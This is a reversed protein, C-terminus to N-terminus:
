AFRLLTIMGVAAIGTAVAWAAGGAAVLIEDVVGPWIGVLAGAVPEAAVLAVGVVVVPAFVPVPAM